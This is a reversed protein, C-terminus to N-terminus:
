EFGRVDHMLETLDAADQMTVKQIVCGAHVLVYDGVKIDVLGTRATVQNGNFDVVADKENVQIVKGPLAVCM